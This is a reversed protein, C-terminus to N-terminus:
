VILIMNSVRQRSAQQGLSHSQLIFISARAIHTHGFQYASLMFIINGTECRMCAHINHTYTYIGYVCTNSILFRSYEHSISYTANHNQPLIM